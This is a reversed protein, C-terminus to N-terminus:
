QTCALVNIFIIINTSYLQLLSLSTSDLLNTNLYYHHLCFKNNDNNYKMPFFFEIFITKIKIPIKRYPDMWTLLVYWYFNKVSMIAVKVPGACMRVFLCSFLFYVSSSASSSYSQLFLPYCPHIHDKYTIYM